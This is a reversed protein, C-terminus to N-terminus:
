AVHRHGERLGPETRLVGDLEDAIERELRLRHHRSVSRMECAARRKDEHRLLRLAAGELLLTRPDPVELEMQRGSKEPVRRGQRRAGLREPEDVAAGVRRYEAMREGKGDRVERPERG